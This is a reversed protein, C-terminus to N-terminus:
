LGCHNTTKKHHWKEPERKETEKKRSSGQAYVPGVQIIWLLKRSYGILSKIGDEARIEGQWTVNVPEPILIEM